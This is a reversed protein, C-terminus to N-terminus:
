SPAKSEIYTRYPSRSENNMSSSPYLVTSNDKPSISNQNKLSPQITDTTLSSELSSIRHSENKNLTYLSNQTLTYIMKDLLTKNQVCVHVEAHLSAKPLFELFIGQVKPLLEVWTDENHPFTFWVSQMPEWEAPLRYPLPSTM